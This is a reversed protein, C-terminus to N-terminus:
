RKYPRSVFNGTKWEVMRVEQETLGQARLKAEDLQFEGGVQSALANIHCVTEIINAVRSNVPEEFTLQRMSRFM